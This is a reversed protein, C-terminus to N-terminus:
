RKNSKAWKIQEHMIWGHTEDSVPRRDADKHANPWVGFKSKYKNSAWGPKYGKDYAYQQLEGYFQKKEETTFVRNAKRKDKSLEALEGDEHEIDSQAEPKFGCAPCKPTKAPRLFHCSPCEKPLPDPKKKNKKERNKGDDLEEYKGDIDTVFGLKLHTDSHDIIILRDKGEAIRLGRGIIQQFLIDSRTPRNLSICRVDWDIGTTLVGVNCVVKVKGTKFDREIQARDERETYADIYACSVGAKVFDEQLKKAHARNVAYCLTPRNEGLKKWQVVTDSVLKAESMVEALEDEKYDGAVIKVGSLDPHNPAYVIFDSLWKEDILEQLSSVSILDDYYKGMGRTYPTASLGIFPVTPWDKMWQLHFKFMHHCEDIIVLDAPPIQRRALTQVSCVQVPKRPDTLPHNGQLVGIEEIGDSAFREVTQDILSLADVCFIVRKGKSRASRIIASALVTKGFGTPAKLVVRKKGSVLSVKLRAIATEQRPRLRKGAMGSGAVDMSKTGGVSDPYNQRGVKAEGFFNQQEADNWATSTMTGM